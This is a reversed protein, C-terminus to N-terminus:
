LLLTLLLYWLLTIRFSTSLLLFYTLYFFDGDDTFKDCYGNYDDSMVIMQITVVMTVMVPLVVVLLVVVMVVM